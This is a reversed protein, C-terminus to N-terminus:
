QDDAISAPSGPGALEPKKRSSIRAVFGSTLLRSLIAAILVAAGFLAMAPQNVLSALTHGSATETSRRPKQKGGTKWNLGLRGRIRYLNGSLLTGM